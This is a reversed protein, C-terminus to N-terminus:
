NKNVLFQTFRELKVVFPSGMQNQALYTLSHSIQDESIRRQM